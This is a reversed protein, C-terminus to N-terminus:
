DNSVAVVDDQNPSVEEAEKKMTPGYKLMKKGFPYICLIFNFGSILVCVVSGLVCLWIEDDEYCITM